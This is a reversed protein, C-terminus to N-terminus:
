RRATPVTSMRVTTARSFQRAKGGVAGGVAPPTSQHLEAAQPLLNRCVGAAPLITNNVTGDLNYATTSTFTQPAGAQVLPDAAALITKTTPQYLNNYATVQTTYIRGTTGGVCRIAATLQGKAVTDYTFKTLQHADDQIGDWTGIKRGLADYDGIITRSTGTRPSWPPTPSIRM